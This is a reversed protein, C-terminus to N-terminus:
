ITNNDSLSNQIITFFVNTKAKKAHKKSINIPTKNAIYISRIFIPDVIIRVTRSMGKITEPIDTVISKLTISSLINPIIGYKNDKIPNFDSKKPDYVAAIGVIIARSTQHCVDKTKMMIKAPNFLIGFSGISAAFISPALSHSIVRYM